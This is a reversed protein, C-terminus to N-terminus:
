DLSSAADLPAAPRPFLNDLWAQVAGVDGYGHERLTDVVDRGCIMAIPHNDARVENYVQRDFYSLTVFVGFNRHRLRSILRSVERVGVSNSETYCKAELAFDIALRDAAPGLLYEGVADRGGDRSPQTVDCRGTAPALLRWIAVACEEFDHARGDFHTHIARLIALGSKDAPLQESKPRVVATAPAVLANYARGEVWERWVPPCLTAAITTQGDLIAEIWKRCVRATDLVTFRARYNQFRLGGKSRWIAALDDDSTLTGNGPALLGRFRVARGPSAKQFLLFPPVKLRDEHTGHTAEFADRLIVNGGRDTDHLDRGPKKNDGYYTFVGTQPDLTDPWDIDTGSTFLVSLRVTRDRPSGSYRFGGQNGVPFLRALPDDAMNGRSGGLYLSEVQLDANPLDDFPVAHQNDTM